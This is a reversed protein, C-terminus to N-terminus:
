PVHPSVVDLMTNLFSTGVYVTQTTSDVYLPLKISVDVNDKHYHLDYLVESKKGKLDIAGDINVSFGRVINLGAGLYQLGKDAKLGKDGKDGQLSKDGKIGKAGKIGKDGLGASAEQKQLVLNTFRSKSSYNFGTAELSKKAAQNLEDHPPLTKACGSLCMVMMGLAATLMHKM